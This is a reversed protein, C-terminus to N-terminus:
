SRQAAGRASREREPAAQVREVHRRRELSPVQRPAREARRRRDAREGVHAAAAGHDRRREPDVRERM